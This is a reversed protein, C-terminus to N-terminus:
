AGWMDEAEAEMGTLDAGMKKAFELAEKPLKKSHTTSSM